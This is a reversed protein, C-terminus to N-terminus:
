YMGGDGFLENAEAMPDFDSYDVPQKFMYAFYRVMDMADDERKLPMDKIYGDSKNELYRYREAEDALWTLNKNFMLTPKGTDARIQLMGAVKAIGNKVSDPPKDVALFNLGADNLESIYSKQNDSWSGQFRRNGRKIKIAEAIDTPKLHKEYFGDIMYIETGTTNVAFQGYATMHEYGFDIAEFLTWSEVGEPITVMHKDRTFDKYILGSMKRFEGMVEQAFSDPDMEQRMKEIEDKNLYPNDYSTFHFYQYDPDESEAMDKFHNFGNPTSIFLAEAESDVMTPRMVKWVEDWYDFFAVEDFVVLDIRVGRLNDPQQAGKLLIQSGNKLVIKLETENTKEVWDKPILERLMEWMISKAQLYTPALYWIISNENKAAHDAIKVGALTTKGGRRGINIVKYRTDDRWVKSQWPSLKIEKM